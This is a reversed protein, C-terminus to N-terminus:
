LVDVKNLAQGILVPSFQKMNLHNALKHLSEYPSVIINKNLM